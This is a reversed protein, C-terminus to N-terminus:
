SAVLLFRLPREMRTQFHTEIGSTSWVGKPHQGGIVEARVWFLGFLQMVDPSNGCLHNKNKGTQWGKKKGHAIFCDAPNPLVLALNNLNFRGESLSGNLGPWDSAPRNRERSFTGMTSFFIRALGM